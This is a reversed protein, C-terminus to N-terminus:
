RTVGRSTLREYVWDGILNMSTAVIVIMAAPALSAWPNIFLLNRNESLMLGWDPQGPGAGFGLFSLGSLAVLALAFLLFTNALATASVNPWIHLLMIRRRPVGATVAAEIYPRPMQELTAGRIVRTDFPVFLVALVLVAMWYGGGVAGVIVVAILLGPLALMLDVWRMILSDTRGGFYGAVLGLANGILFSLLAVVAPGIVAARAGVIVRSFVDRGLTDTGFWYTGTPKTLGVDLNQSMAEHPAIMSGLAAAAGIVLMLLICLAVLIPPWSRRSRSEEVRQEEGIPLAIGSM